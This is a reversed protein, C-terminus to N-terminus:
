GHIRQLFKCFIALRGPEVEDAAAQYRAPLQLTVDLFVTQAAHSGVGGNEFLRHGAAGIVLGLEVFQLLLAVHRGASEVLREGDGINLIGGVHQTRDVIRAIRVIAIDAQFARGIVGAIRL